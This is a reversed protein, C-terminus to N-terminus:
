RRVIDPVSWGGELIDERPWYMRLTVEFPGAPVPLWNEAPVDDPKKTAFSIVIDGNEDARLNSNSGLAYRNIRNVSLFGDKDYVTVSWFGNVPPTAGDAFRLEYEGTSGDLM